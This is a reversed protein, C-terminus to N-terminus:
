KPPTRLVSTEKYCSYYLAICYNKNVTNLTIANQHEKLSGICMKKACLILLSLIINRTRPNSVAGSVILIAAVIM